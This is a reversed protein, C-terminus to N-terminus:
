VEFFVFDIDLIEGTGACEEVEIGALFPHLLALDMEAGLGEDEFGIIPISGDVLEEESFHGHLRNSTQFQEILLM